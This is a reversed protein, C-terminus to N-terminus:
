VPFLVSVLRWHNVVIVFPKQVPLLASETNM